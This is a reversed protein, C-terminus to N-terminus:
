RKKTIICLKEFNRKERFRNKKMYRPNLIMTFFEGKKFSTNDRKKAYIIGVFKRKRLQYAVKSYNKDNIDFETIQSSKIM